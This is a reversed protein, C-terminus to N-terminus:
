LFPCLPMKLGPLKAAFNVPKGVGTSDRTLDPIFRNRVSFGVARPLWVPGQWGLQQGPPGMTVIDM